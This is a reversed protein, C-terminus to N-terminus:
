LRTAPAVLPLLPIFCSTVCSLFTSPAPSSVLRLPPNVPILQLAGFSRSHAASPGSQVGRRSMALGSKLPSILAMSRFPGGNGGLSEEVGQPVSTPVTQCARWSGHRRGM